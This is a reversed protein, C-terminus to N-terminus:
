AQGRFTGEIQPAILNCRRSATAESYVVTIFLIDKTKIQADYTASNLAAQGQDTKQFYSLDRVQVHFLLALSYWCHFIEKM